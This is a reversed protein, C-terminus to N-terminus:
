NMLSVSHTPLLGFLTLKISVLPSVFFTTALTSFAFSDFALCTYVNTCREACFTSVLFNQFVFSPAFAFVLLTTFVFLLVFCISVVFVFVLFFALFSFLLHIVDILYM